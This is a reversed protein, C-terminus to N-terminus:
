RAVNKSAEGGKMVVVVRRAAIDIPSGVAQITPFWAMLTICANELECLISQSPKMTMM